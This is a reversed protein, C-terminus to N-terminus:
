LNIKQCVSWLFVIKENKKTKSNVIVGIKKCDSVNKRKTKVFFIM